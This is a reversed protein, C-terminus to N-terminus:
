NSKSIKSIYELFDLGTNDRRALLQVCRMKVQFKQTPCEPESFTVGPVPAKFM